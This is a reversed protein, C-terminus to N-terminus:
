HLPDGGVVDGDVLTSHEECRGKSVVGKGLSRVEKDADDVGVYSLSDSVGDNVRSGEPSSMDVILHWKGPEGKPVVGSRSIDM